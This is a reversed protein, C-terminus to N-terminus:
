VLRGQKGEERFELQRVDGISDPHHGFHEVLFEDVRLGGGVDAGGGEFAGIVAGGLAVPGSWPHERGRGAVQIQLDGLQALPREEGGEELPAAAHVLGQEGDDHLSVQM